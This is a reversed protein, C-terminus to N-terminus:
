KVLLEFLTNAIRWGFAAGFGFVFANLVNSM